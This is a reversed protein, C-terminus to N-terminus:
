HHSKQAAKNATILEQIATEDFKKPAGTHRALGLEKAVRKITDAELQYKAERIKIAIKELTPNMPNSLIEKLNKTRETLKQLKAHMAAKTTDENIGLLDQMVIETTDKKSDLLMIIEHLEDYNQNEGLIALLIEQLNDPDMGLYKLLQDNEDTGAAVQKRNNKLLIILIKILAIRGDFIPDEDM